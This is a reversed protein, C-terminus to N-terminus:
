VLGADVDWAPHLIDFGVAAGNYKWVRFWSFVTQQLIQDLSYNCPRRGSEWECFVVNIDKM